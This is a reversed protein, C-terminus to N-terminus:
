GGLFRWRGLHFHRSQGLVSRVLILETVMWTVPEISQDAVGQEAYLLTVHPTFKASEGCPFGFERAAKGLVRHFRLLTENGETARM